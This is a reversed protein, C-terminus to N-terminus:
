KIATLEKQKDADAKKTATELISNIEAVPLSNKLEWWTKYNKAKSATTLHNLLTVTYGVPREGKDVLKMKYFVANKGVTPLKSQYQNTDAEREADLYTKSASWEAIGQSCTINWQIFIPETSIADRIPSAALEQNLVTRINKEVAERFRKGKELAEAETGEFAWLFEDGGVRFARNPFHEKLMKGFAVIVRDGIEHGLCDNISKFFDIDLRCIFFLKPSVTKAHFNPLYVDVATKSYLGTMPDTYLAEATKQESIVTNVYTNIRDVAWFPIIRLLFKEFFNMSKDTRIVIETVHNRAKKFLRELAPDSLGAKKLLNLYYYAQPYESMKLYAAGLSFYMNNTNHGRNLLSRYAKIAEAFQGKELKIDAELEVADLYGHDMELIRKITQICDPFQKLQFHATALFMSLKIEEQTYENLKAKVPIKFAKAVELAKEPAGNDSFIGAALLYAKINTPEFKNIVQDCLELAENLKGEEKLFNAQVLCNRAREPNIEHVQDNNM